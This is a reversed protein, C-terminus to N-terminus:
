AIEATLVHACMPFTFPEGPRTRAQMAATFADALDALAADGVQEALPSGKVEIEVLRELSAFRAGRTLTRIDPNAIGAAEALSTFYSLDGLAFPFAIVAGAEPSIRESALRALTDYVPMTEPGAWVAVSVRGGPRTVRVMDRLAAAPDELFMLLFQSVVRDFRDDPFPLAAANGQRWAIDPAKEAAVALMGANADLGTVAGSAGARARAARALVGTGCGVDLVSAGAAIGACDAVAEAWAGFIAPVFEAEYFRAASNSVQWEPDSM